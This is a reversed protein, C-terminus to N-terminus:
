ENDNLYKCGEKCQVNQTQKDVGYWTDCLNNCQTMAESAQKCQTIRKHLYALCGSRYAASNGQCTNNALFTVFPPAQYAVARSPISLFTAAIALAILIFFMTRM